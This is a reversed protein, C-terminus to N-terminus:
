HFMKAATRMGHASIAFFLESRTTFSSFDQKTWVCTRHSKRRNWSKTHILAQPNIRALSFSTAFCVWSSKQRSMTQAFYTTHMKPGRGLVFHLWCHPATKSLCFERWGSVIKWNGFVELSFPYPPLLPSCDELTVKTLFLPVNKTTRGCFLTNRIMRPIKHPFDKALTSSFQFIISETAKKVQVLFLHLQQKGLINECWSSEDAFLVFIDEDKDANGTVAYLFGM